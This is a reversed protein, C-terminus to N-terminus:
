NDIEETITVNFDLNPNESELRDSLMEEVEQIPRVKQEYTISQNVSGCGHLIMALSIGGFIVMSKKFKM